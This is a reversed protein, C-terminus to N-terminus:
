IGHTMTAVALNNEWGEGAALICSRGKVDTILMTWSGSASVYIEVIAAQGVVGYGIQKEQFAQALGAVVDNHAGCVLQAQASLTTLALAAGTAAMRIWRFSIKHAM